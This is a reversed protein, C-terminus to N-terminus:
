RVIVSVKRARAETETVDREEEEPEDQQAVPDKGGKTIDEKRKQACPHRELEGEQQDASRKKKHPKKIRHAGGGRTNGMVHVTSGDGIGCGKVVDSGRMVKGEFTVCVDDTSWRTQSQVERCQM